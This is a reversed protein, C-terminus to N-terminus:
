TAREEPEDQGIDAPWSIGSGLAAELLVQITRDLEPDDFQDRSCAESRNRCCPVLAASTIIRHDTLAEALETGLDRTTCLIPSLDLGETGIWVTFLPDDTM